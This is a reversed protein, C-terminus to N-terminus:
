KEAFYSAAGLGFGIYERCEWYRRNHLCERGDLAYNSIEYRHYGNEKLIEETEHYM